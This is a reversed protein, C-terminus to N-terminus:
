EEPLPLRNDLYEEWQLITDFASLCAATANEIVKLPKYLSRSFREVSNIQSLFYQEQAKSTRANSILESLLKLSENQNTELNVSMWFGIMRRVPGDMLTICKTFKSCNQSYAKAIPTIESAMKSVIPFIAKTDLRRNSADEISKSGDQFVVSMDNLNKTISDLLAASEKSQENIVDVDEFVFGTENEDTKATVASPSPLDSEKPKAQVSDLESIAQSNPTTSSDAKQSTKRGLEESSEVLQQNSRIIRKAMKNIAKEYRESYRPAFRLKTWDEYQYCLVRSVLDTDLSLYDAQIDVYLIPLILSRAAPNDYMEVKELYQSLEARCSSSAFYRPSLIPIFFSAEDISSSLQEEWRTGWEIGDRDIFLNLDDTTLLSYEECLDDRLNSLQENTDDRHAYSFFGELKILGM